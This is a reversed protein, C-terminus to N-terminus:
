VFTLGVSALNGNSISCISVDRKSCIWIFIDQPKSLDRDLILVSHKCAHNTSETYRRLNRHKNITEGIHLIMKGKKIKQKKSMWENPTRYEKVMRPKKIEYWSTIWQEIVQKHHGLFLRSALYTSLPILQQNVPFSLEQLRGVRHKEKQTEQFKADQFWNRFSTEPEIRNKWHAIQIWKSIMKDRAFKVKVLMWIVSYMGSFIASKKWKKNTQCNYNTM